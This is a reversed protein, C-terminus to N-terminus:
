LMTALCARLMTGYPSSTHSHQAHTHQTHTRAHTRARARTYTCVHTCQCQKHWLSHFVTCGTDYTFPLKQRCWEQIAVRVRSQRYKTNAPFRNDSMRIAWSWCREGITCPSSSVTTNSIGVGAVDDALVRRMRPERRSVRLRTAGSTHSSTM